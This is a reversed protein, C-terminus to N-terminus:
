EESFIDVVIVGPFVFGAPIRLSQFVRATMLGRLDERVRRGACRFVVLHKYDPYGEHLHDLFVSRTRPLPRPRRHSIDSNSFLDGTGPSRCQNRPDSHQQHFRSLGRPVQVSYLDPAQSALSM